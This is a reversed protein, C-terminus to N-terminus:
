ASANPQSNTAPAHVIARYGRTEKARPAQVVEVQKLDDLTRIEGKEIAHYIPLYIDEGNEEPRRLDALLKAAEIFAEATPFLRKKQAAELVREYAGSGNGYVRSYSDAYQRGLRRLETPDITYTRLTKLAADAYDRKREPKLGLARSCYQRLGGKWDGQLERVLATRLENLFLRTVENYPSKRTIGSVPYRHKLILVQDLM